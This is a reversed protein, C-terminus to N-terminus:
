FAAWRTQGHETVVFLPGEPDAVAATLPQDLSHVLDDVAHSLVRRQPLGQQGPGPHWHGPWFM